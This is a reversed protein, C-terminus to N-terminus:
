LISTDTVSLKGQRHFIGAGDNATNGEIVTDGKIVTNGDSENFFGGGWSSASNGSITCGKITMNKHNTVGGGNIANTNQEITSDSLTADGKSWIGAGGGRVTNSKVACDTVTLTGFNAIGGGDYASNSDFTCNTLTVTAAEDAFLGGGKENASCNQVVCDKMQVSGGRVSVAGGNKSKNEDFTVDHVILKSNELVRIAGTDAGKNGANSIITTQDNEGKGNITLTSGNEVVFMGAMNSEIHLSYGNANIVHNKGDNITITDGFLINESLEVTESQGLKEKLEEDAYPNKISKFYLTLDQIFLKESTMKQLVANCPMQINDSARGLLTGDIYVDMARAGSFRIDNTLFAGRAVFSGPRIEHIYVLEKETEIERASASVIGLNGTMSFLLLLTLMLSTMRMPPSVSKKM